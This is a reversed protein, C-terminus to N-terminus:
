TAVLANEALLPVNARQQDSLPVTVLSREALPNWHGGL